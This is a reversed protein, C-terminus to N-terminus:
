NANKPSRSWIDTYIKWEGMDTNKWLIQYKGRFHNEISDNVISTGNYYGFDLAWDGEITIESPFIEHYSFRSNTGPKPKWYQFISDKGTIIDMGPPFLKADTMYADAIGTYNQDMLDKSFKKIAAKIQEIENSHDSKQHCANFSHAFLILFVFAFILKANQM